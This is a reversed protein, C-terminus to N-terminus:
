PAVSWGGDLGITSGTVWEASSHLLWCIPALLDTTRGVRGVPLRSEMAKLIDPHQDWVRRTAPTDVPGPVLANVRIGHIAWEQALCRVLTISAAKAAAFHSLGPAPGHHLSSAVHLISLGRTGADIASRAAEQACRWFGAANLNFSNLFEAEGVDLASRRSAGGACTLLGDPPRPLSAFMAIVSHRDCVDVTVAHAGTVASVAAAGEADLDAAYVDAGAARLAHVASAGIGSAAGTVVILRGKFNLDEPIL